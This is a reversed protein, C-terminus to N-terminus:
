AAENSQNGFSRLARRISSITRAASLGETLKHQALDICYKRQAKTCTSAAIQIFQRVAFYNYPIVKM